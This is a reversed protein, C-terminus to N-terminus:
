GQNSFDDNPNDPDFGLDADGSLLVTTYSDPGDYTMDPGSELFAMLIASKPGDSFDVEFRVPHGLGYKRLYKWLMIALGPEYIAVPVVHVAKLHRLQKDPVLRPPTM